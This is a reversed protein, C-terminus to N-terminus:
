NSLSYFWHSFCSKYIRGLFSRAFGIILLSQVIFLVFIYFGQTIVVLLSWPKVFWFEDARPQWPLGPNVAEEASMTSWLPSRSLVLFLGSSCLLSQVMAETAAKSWSNGREKEGLIALLQAEMEKWAEM